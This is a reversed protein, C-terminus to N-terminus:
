VLVISLAFYALGLQMILLINAQALLEVLPTTFISSHIVSHALLQIELVYIAVQMVLNVHILLEM